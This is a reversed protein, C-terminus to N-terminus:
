PVYVHLAVGIRVFGIFEGYECSLSVKGLSFCFLREFFINM